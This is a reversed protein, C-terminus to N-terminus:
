SDLLAADTVVVTAKSAVVLVIVIRAVRGCRRRSALERV